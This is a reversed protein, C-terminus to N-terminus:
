ANVNIMSWLIPANWWLRDDPRLLSQSSTPIKPKMPGCVGLGENCSPCFIIGLIGPNNQVYHLEPVRLDVVAWQCAAGVVNLLQGFGMVDDRFELHGDDPNKSCIYDWIKSWNAAM